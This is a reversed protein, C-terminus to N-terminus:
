DWTNLKSQTLTLDGKSQDMFNTLPLMIDREAARTSLGLLEQPKM